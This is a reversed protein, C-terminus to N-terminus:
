SSTSPPAMSTALPLYASSSGPSDGHQGAQHGHQGAESVSEETADEAEDAEEV